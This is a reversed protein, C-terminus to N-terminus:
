RSSATRLSSNSQIAKELKSADAVSKIEFKYVDTAM